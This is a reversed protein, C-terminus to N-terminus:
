QIEYQSSIKQIRLYKEEIASKLLSSKEIAVCVGTTIQHVFAYDKSFNKIGKAASPNCSFILMDCGARLAAIAASVSDYGRYDTEDGMRTKQFKRIIAGMHMDDSVIIGKFGEKRLNDLVRWSLTAPMDPDWANNYLHGTMIADHFGARVMQHFVDGECVQYTNTVDVIGEHTDGQASGHGPYHKLCPIVGAHRHAMCVNQACAIVDSVSKGYSREYGSIVPCGLDLDLCPAFNFNFGLDALESALKQSSEHQKEPPLYSFEKASPITDYGNIANTRIVHGGEQDIAILLPTNNKSTLAQFYTNLATIQSRSAINHRFAIVGGVLGLTILHSVDRVGSDDPSLGDFGVIILRGIKQALTPM